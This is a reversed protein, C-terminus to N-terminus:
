ECEGWCYGFLRFVYNNLLIKFSTSHSQVRHLFAMALAVTLIAATLLIWVQQLANDVWPIYINNSFHSIFYSVTTAVEVNFGNLLAFPTKIYRTKRGVLITLEVPHIMPTLTM